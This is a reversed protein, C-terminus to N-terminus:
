QYCNVAIVPLGELRLAGATTSILTTKGSKSPGLQKRPDFLYAIRGDDMRAVQLNGAPADHLIEAVAARTTAATKKNM